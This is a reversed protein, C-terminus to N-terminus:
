HKHWMRGKIDLIIQLLQVHGSKFPVGVGKEKGTLQLTVAGGGGGWKSKLGDM